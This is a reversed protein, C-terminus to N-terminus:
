TSSTAITVIIALLAVIVGLVAIRRDVSRFISKSESSYTKQLSELNSRFSLIAKHLFSNANDTAKDRKATESLPTEAVDRLANLFENIESELNNFLTECQNRLKLELFAKNRNFCTFGDHIPQMDEAGFKTVKQLQAHIGNNFYDDIKFLSSQIKEFAEKQNM